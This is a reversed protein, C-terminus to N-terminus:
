DFISKKNVNFFQTFILFKIPFRHKQMSLVVETNGEAPVVQSQGIISDKVDCKEELIAADCIMSGQVNSGSKVTVRDM